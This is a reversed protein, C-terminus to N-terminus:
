HCDSSDNKNVAANISYGIIEGMFVIQGESVASAKVFFMSM